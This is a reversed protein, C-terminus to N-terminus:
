KVLEEFKHPPSSSSSGLHLCCLLDQLKFQRSLLKIQVLPFLTLPHMLKYEKTTRRCLLNNVIILRCVFIHYQQKSNNENQKQNDTSKSDLAVLTPFCKAIGTKHPFWKQSNPTVTWTNSPFHTTKLFNQRFFTDSLCVCNVLCQINLCFFSLFVIMCYFTKKALNLGEM